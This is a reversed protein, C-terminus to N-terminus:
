RDFGVDSLPDLLILAVLVGSPLCEGLEHVENQSHTITSRGVPRNGRPARSKRSNRRPLGATAVDRHVAVLRLVKVADHILEIVNLCLKCLYAATMSGSSLTGDEKM